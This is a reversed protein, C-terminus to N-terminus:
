QHIPNTQYGEVFYMDIEGKNKAAVKGRHICTFRDKVLNYTTGSINIRKAESNQEMRAATNVTDGWIDYAYKKVGVIGAVVPGSHIGIRIQFTDGSQNMQQQIDLAARVVREAHDSTEHPLGCVALYADGITKIKELGHKEIIADFATFYQHIVAVLETPSLQESIGTFNVFDTFLVTVHNYQRAETQGTQKLEKAVETPLINLLLDDSKKKERSTRQLGVVVALAFLLLMISGVIFVNRQNERAILEQTTLELETERLVKEKNLLKLEADKQATVVRQNESKVHQEGLEAQAKLFALQQIDKEQKILALQQQKYSLEQEQKGMMLEQQKLKEYSLKQEFLLQTEKKDFQYQIEKLAMANKTETGEISDRLLIYEKFAEFAKSYNGQKEYTYSMEEWANKETGPDSILQALHQGQEMFLMAKPYRDKLDVGNSKLVRDPADRFDMGLHIRNISEQRKNGAEQNMRLARQHYAIANPFDGLNYYVTGIVGLGIAEGEGNGSEEFIKQSQQLYDLAKPYANMMNYTNGINRLQKAIAIKFGSQKSVKLAEEYYEIAKPYNGLFMYTRGISNLNYSIGTEFGIQESLKLAKQHYELAKPYNAMATYDIGINGWCKICRQQDKLQESLEAAQHWYEASLPYDSLSGYLMAIRSLHEVWNSDKAHVKPNVELLSDLRAEKGSSQACLLQAYCLAAFFFSYGLKGLM